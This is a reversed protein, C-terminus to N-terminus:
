APRPIMAVRVQEIGEWTGTTVREIPFGLAALDRDVTLAPATDNRGRYEAALLRGGRHLYLNLIRQVYAQQLEDPVYVLETRVYDFTQPPTWDWGNGVFMNGAYQPLRAKAMEVLKESLDLGYPIVTLDRERVWQLVCELLFGNACGIDLFAGSSTVADAVPKRHAEWREFTRQTDHIGFGSQQWPKEAAVYAPELLGKLDDFWQALEQKNMGSRGKKGDPKQWEAHEV